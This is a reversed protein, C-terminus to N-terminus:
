TQPTLTKHLDVLLVPKEGDLWVGMACSKPPSAALPLRRLTLADVTRVGQVGDVRLSGEGGAAKFVLARGGRKLPGLEERIVSSEEPRDIRVVLTADAAFREGGVEFLILEVNKEAFAADDFGFDDDTM